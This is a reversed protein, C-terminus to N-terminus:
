DKKIAEALSIMAQRLEEDDVSASSKKIQRTVSESFHKLGKKEPPESDGVLSEPQAMIKLELHQGFLEAIQAKIQQSHLRLYNVLAPSPVALVLQHETVNMVKVMQFVADSKQQDFFHQFQNILASKQRYDQPLLKGFLSSVKVPKHTKRNNTSVTKAGM